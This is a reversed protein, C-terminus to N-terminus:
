GDRNLTLLDNLLPPPVSIDDEDELNTVVARAGEGPERRGRGSGGLEGLNPNSAGDPHRLSSISRKNAIIENTAEKHYPWGNVQNMLGPNRPFIRELDNAISLSDTFTSVVTLNEQSLIRLPHEEQDVEPLPNELEGMCLAIDEETVRPGDVWQEEPPRVSGGPPGKGPSSKTSNPKPPKGNNKQPSAPVSKSTARLKQDLVSGKLARGMACRNDGSNLSPIYVPPHEGDTEETPGLYIVTDASQESSSPDVDSNVDAVGERTLLHAISVKFKRRRMRHIRSALQVTALTDTYNATHPSVHAIM